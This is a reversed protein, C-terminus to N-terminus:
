LLTDFSPDLTPLAKEAVAKKRREKTEFLSYVDQDNCREYWIYKGYSGEDQLFRNFWRYDVM